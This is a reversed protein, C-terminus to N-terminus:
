IKLKLGYKLAITETNLNHNQLRHDTILLYQKLLGVSEEDLETLSMLYKQFFFSELRQDDQMLKVKKNKWEESYIHKDDDFGIPEDQHIFYIACCERLTLREVPMQVRAKLDGILMIADAMKNENFAALIIDLRTELIERTVGMSAFRQANALAEHRQYPMQLINKYKYYKVGHYTHVLEFKDSILKKKNPSFIKSLWSM